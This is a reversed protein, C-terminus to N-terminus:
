VKNLVKIVFSAIKAKVVSKLSAKPMVFDAAKKLGENEAIERFKKTYELPKPKAPSYIRESCNAIEGKSLKIVELDNEIKEYLDLAKDTFLFVISNGAEDEDDLVLKGKDGVYIDSYAPLFKFECKTCSPRMEVDSRFIRSFPSNFSDECYVQANIFDAKIHLPLMKGDKKYRMNMSSIESGYDKEIAESFRRLIEPATPGHCIYSLTFLNEYERGLFRRLAATECPAGTFLVTDANELKRKIQTFVNRKDSQVYKSGCMKKVTEINNTLTHHVATFNDNYVAGCVYGGRDIIEHAFTYFMGGSSSNLQIAKDKAKAAFYKSGVSETVRIQNERKIVCKKLCLSCGTCKEADVSPYLYGTSKDEVMKVANEPCVNECASCGYCDTFHYDSVNIQKNEQSVDEVTNKLADKLYKLSMKKLEDLRRSAFSYDVTEPKLSQINENTVIRDELGIESLYDVIRTFKGEDGYNKLAYFPKKYNTAFATGHFSDTVILEADRVLSLFEEIGAFNKEIDEMDNIERMFPVAVIKINMKERITELVKEHLQSYNLFYCLVYKEKYLREKKAIDNWEDPSFLLTPDVVTPCAKGTMKEILFSGTKERSSVFRFGKVYECFKEEYEEPIKLCSVSPAYAIRKEPSIFSLFYFDNLKTHNPNWIQDSGCVCASFKERAYARADSSNNCYYTLNYYRNAFKAFKKEREKCESLRRFKKTELIKNLHSIHIFFKNLKQKKSVHLNETERKDYNIIQAEYGLSNIIEQMAYAQLFVGYNIAKHFTVIGINKKM